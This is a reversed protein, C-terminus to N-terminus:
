WGLWDTRLSCCMDTPLSRSERCMQYCQLKLSPKEHTLVTGSVCLFRNVDVHLLVVPLTFAVSDVEIDVATVLLSYCFLLLSLSVRLMKFSSLKEACANVSKWIEGMKRCLNKGVSHLAFTYFLKFITLSRPRINDMSLWCLFQNELRKCKSYQIWISLNRLSITSLRNDRSQMNGQWFLIRTSLM